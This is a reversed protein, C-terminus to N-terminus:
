GVVLQPGGLVRPSRAVMDGVLLVVHPAEAVEGVVQGGRQLGHVDVEDEILVGVRCCRYRRSTHACGVSDSLDTGMEYRLESNGGGPRTLGARNANHRPDHGAAPQATTPIPREPRHTRCPRGRTTMQHEHSGRGPRPRHVPRRLRNRLRPPRRPRLRSPRGQPHDTGGRHDPLRAPHDSRSSAAPQAAAAPVSVYNPLGVFALAQSVGVFEVVITIANIVFLDGVSCWGWFRGFREFILRAHGVGSVAGLRIVM